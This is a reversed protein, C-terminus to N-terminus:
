FRQVFTLYVISVRTDLDRWQHEFTAGISSMPVPDFRVGVDVNDAEFQTFREFTIIPHSEYGRSYGGTFWVRKDARAAVKAAFGDNWQSNDIQDFHTQSRYYRLTLAFADNPAITVGPSWITSSTTAFHLYRASALWTLRRHTYDADISVDADPLVITNSAFAGGLRFRVARHPMWEFGGGGRGEDRDIKRLYQGTAFLRVKDSVRGNVEVVGSHSDPVDVDFHEFYYTGEIRSAREARLSEYEERVKANGAEIALARQYYAVALAGHNAARHMRGQAALVSPRDAAIAEARNLADAADDLRGLTTYSDGLGILADVNQPSVAVISRYVDVARETHGMWGHLRAIWLRTELDDPNAAAIAQFQQLARAHEGSRALREAEARQDPSQAQPAAVLSLALLTASLLSM